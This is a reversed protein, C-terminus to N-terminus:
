KRSLTLCALRDGAKGAEGPATATVMAEHVVLSEPVRDTLVFPVQARSSGSGTADTRFDLWFENRPNAYEPDTSPQEPTAAPDIRNQFHPGAADGTPGCPETHLHAAYGRNPLLGSVNLEAVTSGDVPIVSVTLRSGIPASAPDYTVANSAQGPAALTGSGGLDVVPTEMTIRASTGAPAPAAPAAGQDASCALPGFALAAGAVALTLRRGTPRRSAVPQRCRGARTCAAELKSLTLGM